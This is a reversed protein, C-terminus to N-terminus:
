SPRPPDLQRYVTAQPKWLTRNLRSDTRKNAIIFQSSRIDSSLIADDVELYAMEQRPTVDRGTSLKQQQQQCHVNRIVESRAKGAVM